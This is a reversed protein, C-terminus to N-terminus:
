HKKSVYDNLVEGDVIFVGQFNEPLRFEESIQVNQFELIGTFNKPLNIQLPVIMSDFILKELKIEPFFLENTSECGYIEIEKLVKASKLLSSLDDDKFYCHKLVLKNTEAPIKWTEPVKCKEIILNGNITQPLKINDSLYNDNFILDGNLISPLSLNEPISALGTFNISGNYENGVFLKLLEPLFIRKKIMAKDVFWSHQAIKEIRATNEVSIIFYFPSSLRNCLDQLHSVRIRSGGNTWNWKYFAVPDYLIDFIPLESDNGDLSEMYLDANDPPILFLLESKIRDSGETRKKVDHESIYDKRIKKKPPTILYSTDDGEALMVSYSKTDYSPLEVSGTTECYFLELTGVMYEPMILGTPIESNLFILRGFFKEPLKLYVPYNLNQFTLKGTFEEPLQISNDFEVGFFHLTGSYKRPFKLGKPIAGFKFSMVIHKAHVLEFNEPFSCGILQLDDLIFDPIKFDSPFQVFESFFSHYGEPMIIGAEFTKIMTLRIEGRVKQPLVTGQEMKVFSLSLNEVEVPFCLDPLSAIECKNITLQGEIIEPLTIDDPFTCETFLLDGKLKKPFVLGDPIFCQQYLNITGEFEDCNQPILNWYEVPELLEVKSAFWFEGNEEDIEIPTDKEIKVPYVMFESLERCINSADAIRIRSKMKGHRMLDSEKIIKGSEKCGIFRENLYLPLLYWTKSYDFEPCSKNNKAVDTQNSVVETHDKIQRLREHFIFYESTQQQTLQRLRKLNSLPTLENDIYYGRQLSSYTVEVGFEVRLSEFDRKLTRDSIMLGESEMRDIIENATPFRDREVSRIIIILRKIKEQYSM